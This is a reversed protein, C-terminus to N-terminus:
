FVLFVLRCIILTEGNPDNINSDSPLIPQNEKQSAIPSIMSLTKGLGMHDALIGGVFYSQNPYNSADFDCGCDGKPSETERWLLWSLRWKQYDYLKTTMIKLTPTM